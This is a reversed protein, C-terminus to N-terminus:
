ACRYSSPRRYRLLAFRRARLQGARRATGLGGALPDGGACAAALAGGRQHRRRPRGNVADTV